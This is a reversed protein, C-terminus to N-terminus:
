IPHGRIKKGKKYQIDGYKRKPHGRIKKKGSILHGRIKKKEMNSTGTNKEANNLNSFM